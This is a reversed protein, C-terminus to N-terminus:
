NVNRAFLCWSGVNKILKIKDRFPDLFQIDKNDSIVLFYDYRDGQHQEWDFERPNWTSLVPWDAGNYRVPVNQAAPSHAFGPVEGGKVAQYWAGHHLYSPAFEIPTEAHLAIFLVRKNEEMSTIITQFDKDNNKFAKFVSSTQWMTIGIILFGVCYIAWKAALKSLSKNLSVDDKPWEFIFLALPFLFVSFRMYIYATDFMWYPTIMFALFVTMLPLWRRWNKSFRAGIWCPWSLFLFALVVFDWVARLGISFSMLEKFRLLHVSKETRDKFAEIIYTIEGIIRNMYHDIYYPPNPTSQGSPDAIIMWFGALPLISLFASAKKLSEKLTNRTFLIASGALMAFAWALAHSFFLLLSFSAATIYWKTTLNSKAYRLVFAFFLIVLPTAVIYNFFGWYFSYSFATPFIIWIAYKNGGLERILWVCALPIALISITLVIKLSTIISFVQAFLLVLGYGLLYPTFWNLTYTSSYSEFDKIMQVQVAHNALDTLPLYTISWIPIILLASLFLFTIYYLYRSM